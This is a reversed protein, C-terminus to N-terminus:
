FAHGDEKCARGPRLLGEIWFTSGSFECGDMRDSDFAYQVGSIWFGINTVNNAKLTGDANETLTRMEAYFYLGGKDWLTWVTARYPFNVYFPTAKDYAADKKGDITPKTETYVATRYKAIEDPLTSPKMAATGVTMAATLSLLMAFLCLLSLGNKM